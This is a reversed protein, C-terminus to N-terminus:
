LVKMDVVQLIHLGGQYCEPIFNIMFSVEKTEGEAPIWSIDQYRGSNESCKINAKLIVVARLSDLLYENVVIKEASIDTIELSLGNEAFHGKIDYIGTKDSGKTNSSIGIHSGGFATCKNKDNGEFTIDVSKDVEANTSIAKLVNVADKEIWEATEPKLLTGFDEQSFNKGSYLLYKNLEAKSIECLAIEGGSKKVRKAYIYKGNTKQLIFGACEEDLDSLLEFYKKNSTTVAGSASPSIPKKSLDEDASVKSGDNKIEVYYPEEPVANRDQITMYTGFGLFAICLLAAIVKVGSRM